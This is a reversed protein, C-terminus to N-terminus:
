TQKKEYYYIILISAIGLLICLIDAGFLANFEPIIRHYGIIQQHTNLVEHKWPWAAGLSGIIFGTLWALVVHHFHRLLYGMIKSFIVMGVLSGSAFIGVMYLMHVREAREVMNHTGLLAFDGNFLSVLTYFLNNVSDVLILNYNGIIILIFSGSFGPLTMGSVSIIGCLFIFWYNDNPALPEMFSILLGLLAGVIVGFYSSIHWKEVKKSVYFVSGIILGFFYSWVEPKLGLGNNIPERMLYDILLSISFFASVSGFNVAFLFKFNIYKLFTNFKGSLLLNLAKGNLKQFSYILEEYFNTVLAVMGGSVGPIKNATGMLLGKFWLILYDLFTRKYM